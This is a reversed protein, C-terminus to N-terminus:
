HTHSEEMTMILIAAVSGDDEQTRSRSVDMLPANSGMALVTPETIKASTVIKPMVKGTSMAHSMVPASKKVIARLIKIRTRKARLQTDGM